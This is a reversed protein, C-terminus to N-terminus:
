MFRVHLTSCAKFFHVFITVSLSRVRLNTKYCGYIQSRIKSVPAHFFMFKSNAGVAFITLVFYAFRKLFIDVNRIFTQL